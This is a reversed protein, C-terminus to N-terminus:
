VCRAVRVRYEEWQSQYQINIQVVYKNMTQYILRRYEEFGVFTISMYPVVRIVAAGNGRWFCLFGPFLQLYITVPLHKYGLNM